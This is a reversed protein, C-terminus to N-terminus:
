NSTEIAEPDEANIERTGYRYTKGFFYNLFHYCLLIM